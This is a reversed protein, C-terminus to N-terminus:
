NESSSKLPCHRIAFQLATDVAAVSRASVNVSGNCLTAALGTGVRRGRLSGERNLEFAPFQALDIV